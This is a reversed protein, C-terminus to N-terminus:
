KFLTCAKEFSKLTDKSVLGKNVANNAFVEFQKLIPSNLVGLIMDRNKFCLKLFQIPTNQYDTGANAFFKKCFDEVEPNGSSNNGNDVSIVKNNNGNYFFELLGM